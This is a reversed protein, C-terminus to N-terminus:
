PRKEWLSGELNDEDVAFSEWSLLKLDPTLGAELEDRELCFALPFGHRDHQAPGFSCLLARGGPRLAALLHRWQSPSPKFRVVVLSAFPGLGALAGPEDLDGAVARIPLGRAVAAQGLRDIAVPSVDVATVPFGQEALWLANRGHGAAVDLLPGRPLDDAHRVLFPEPDM